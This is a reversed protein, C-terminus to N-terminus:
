LNEIIDQNWVTDTIYSENTLEKKVYYYFDKEPLPYIISWPSVAQVILNNAIFLGEHDFQLNYLVYSDNSLGPIDKLKTEMNYWHCNKIKQFCKAPKRLSNWLIPHWGTLFTDNDPLNDSLANKSIKVLDPKYEPDMKTKLIRAINHGNTSYPDAVVDGRVLDQILKFTNDMMLIQTDHLLCVTSSTLNNSTLTFGTTGVFNFSLNTVNSLVISQTSITITTTTSNFPGFIGSTNNNISLAIRFTGTIVVNNFVFAAISSLDVSSSYQYNLTAGTGGFQTVISLGTTGGISISGPNGVSLRRISSPAWSPDPGAFTQGNNAASQIFTFNDFFITSM